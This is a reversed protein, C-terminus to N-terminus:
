AATALANFNDIWYQLRKVAHAKQQPTTCNIIVTTLEAMGDRSADFFSQHEVGGYHEVLNNLYENLMQMATDRSPKEAQIKKLIRILDQQHQLRVAMRVENNLVRADSSKRILTKQEASFSGFWYEAQEMVKEYRFKQRKEVDGRLYDKRYTENTSAFKKEIHAIQAPQLSLALDALDPLAKDIAVMIRKKFAGYEALLEAQTVPHQLRQQEQTLLNAYDPLQTKRHWAFWNAIDDSFWGRQNADFDVYSDLWWYSISEGYNYGLRVLSCSTTMIAFVCIVAFMATKKAITHTQRMTFNQMVKLQTGIFTTMRAAPIPFRM